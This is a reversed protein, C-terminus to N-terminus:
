DDHMLKNYIMLLKKVAFANSLDLFEWESRGLKELEECSLSNILRALELPNRPDFSPSVKFVARFSPINSVILPLGVSYAELGVFGLEEYTSPLVQLDVDQMLMLVEDRKLYGHGILKVDSSAEVRGSGVLHLEVPRNIYKLAMLLAKLNKRPM